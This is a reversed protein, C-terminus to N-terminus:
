QRRGRAASSGPRRKSGLEAHPVKRRSKASAGAKGSKPTLAALRSELQSRLTAADRIDARASQLDQKLEERQSQLQSIQARLEKGQREHEKAMEKAAQRGRDIEVLWRAENADHRADLKTREAQHAETVADLKSRLERCETELSESRIRLREVEAERSQLLTELREARHNTATLQDRALALSEELAADRAAAADSREIWQAERDQVAAEREALAAERTTAKGDIAAHASDLATNWLGQLAKAVEDPLEPFERGPIDRLRSGLQSWWVDLHEQITNPSGRGLHARVREITVRDGAILVADAAQFVDPRSLRPARPTRATGYAPGSELETDPELDTTM